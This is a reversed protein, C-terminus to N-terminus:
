PQKEGIFVASVDIERATTSDTPDAWMQQPQAKGVAVGAIEEANPGYFAGALQGNLGTAYKRTATGSFQSGSINADFITHVPEAAGYVKASGTLKNTEFNATMDFEGSAGFTGEGDDSNIGAFYYDGHYDATQKPLNDVPTQLGTVIMGYGEMDPITWEDDENGPDVSPDVPQWKGGKTFAALSVYDSNLVYAGKSDDTSTHATNGYAFWEHGSDTTGADGQTLTYEKEGVKIKLTNTQSRDINGVVYTGVTSVASTAGATAAGFGQIGGAEQQAANISPPGGATAETSKYATLVQSSTFGTTQGGVGGPGGAGGGCASLVFVLPVASTISLYRSHNM